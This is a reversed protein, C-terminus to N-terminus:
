FGGGMFRTPELGVPAMQPEPAVTADLPALRHREGVGAPLNLADGAGAAPPNAHRTNGSFTLQPAFNGGSKGGVAYALADVAGPGQTGTQVAVQSTRTTTPDPLKGVAGSLDFLAAHTYRTTTMSMTTHRALSMVVRPSVGRKMLGTVYSHRLAHFDAREGRDNVYAIGARELIAIHTRAEPLFAFVLEGAAPGGMAEWRASLASAAAPHLPISEARRSKANAARVDIWPHTGTLRVDGWRLTKLENRRLGSLLALVYLDRHTEPVAQLLAAQEDDTLARRARRIDGEPKVKGVGALPDAEIHTGVCWKMWARASELTRNMSVPGRKRLGTADDVPNAARWRSFGNATIDRLIKWGTESLLVGLRSRQTRIYEPSRGTTTLEDLYEDMLEDLPIDASGAYPDTLGERGRAAALRWRSLKQQSARKDTYCKEVWRRKGTARDETRIWFVNNRGRREIWGTAGM